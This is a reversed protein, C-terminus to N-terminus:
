QSMAIRCSVPLEQVAWCEVLQVMELYGKPGMFGDSTLLGPTSIVHCPKTVSYSGQDTQAALAFAM